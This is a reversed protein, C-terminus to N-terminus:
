NQNLSEIVRFTQVQIKYNTILILLKKIEEYFM